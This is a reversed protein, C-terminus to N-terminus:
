SKKGYELIQYHPQLIQRGFLIWIFRFNRHWIDLIELLKHRIGLVAPAGSFGMAM